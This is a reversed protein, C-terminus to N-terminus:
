TAVTTAVTLSPVSTSTSTTGSYDHMELNVPTGELIAATAITLATATTSFLGAQQLIGNVYLNMSGGSTIAPIDGTLPEGADTLFSGAPITTTGAGADIMAATVTANLRTVADTVTTDTTTAVTGAIVSTALAFPKILAPPM